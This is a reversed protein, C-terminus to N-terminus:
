LVGMKEGFVNLFHYACAFKGKEVVDVNKGWFTTRVLLNLKKKYCDFLPEKETENKKLLPVLNSSFKIFFSLIIIFM